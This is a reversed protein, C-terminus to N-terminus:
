HGYSVVRVIKWGEQSRQWVHTFGFVGCDLVDNSLHCFQHEGVQIAGFEPLPFVKMSEVTLTRKLGLDRECNLQTSAMTMQYDSLGSIDHYFELDVDFIEGMVDTDCRNFADFFLTDALLIENYLSTDARATHFLLLMLLSCWLFSKLM